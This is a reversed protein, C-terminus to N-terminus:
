LNKLQKENLRGYDSEKKGEYKIVGAGFLVQYSKKQVCM